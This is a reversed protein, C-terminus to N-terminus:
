RAPQKAAECQAKSREEAHEAIERYREAIELMARRAALADLLKAIARAEAARARWHKADDLILM